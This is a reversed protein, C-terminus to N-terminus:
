KAVLWNALEIFTEFEFVKDGGKIASEILGQLNRNLYAPYIKGRTLEDTSHVYCFNEKDGGHAAFGRIGGITVGYFKKDDVDRSIVENPSINNLIVTKM